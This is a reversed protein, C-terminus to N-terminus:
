ENIKLLKEKFELIEEESEKLENNM